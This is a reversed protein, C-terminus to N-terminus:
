LSDIERKQKPTFSFGTMKYIFAGVATNKNKKVFNYNYNSYEKDFKQLLLKLKTKQTEDAERIQQNLNAFAFDANRKRDKWKQLADNQPTGQVSSVSDIIVSIKGSETVVLLEQLELRLIPRTRLIRIGPQSADGEFRFVGNQIKASDVTEATADEIPVLYILEGDYATGSLRGEIIYRNDTQVCSIMLIFSFLYLLKQM